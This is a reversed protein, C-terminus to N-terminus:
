ILVLEYDACGAQEKYTDFLRRLEGFYRAHVLDVEEQTPAAKQEVRLPAGVVVNTDIKRPLPLYMRGYPFYPFPFALRKVFWRQVKPAYVNDMLEGEQFSLIPVLPTGSEIALRIFGKHRTYVRIQKLGSRQELMEAQGGPVVLVSEKEELTAAFAERTVERSGLYQLVDRLWPIQHLISAVLVHAHVGPFLDRWQQSFLLWTATTSMIGHPHFGMIYHQKADLPADRILKAGFYKSLIDMVRNRQTVWDMKIRHGTVQPKGRYSFVYVYFYATLLLMPVTAEMGHTYHYYTTLGPLSLMLAQPLVFKLRYPSVHKLKGNQSEINHWHIAISRSAVFLFEVLTTSLGYFVAEGLSLKTMTAYMVVFLASPVWQLNTLGGLVFAGLCEDAFAQLRQGFAPLNKKESEDVRTKGKFMLLSMMMVVESVLFLAGAVIMAGVFLELEVVVISLLYLGQIFIGVSFCTWSIAQFLMFQVGGTFPQYFRWGDKTSLIGGLGYTNFMGTVVLALSSMGASLAFRSLIADDAMVYVPNENDELETTFQMLESNVALLLAGIVLLMNNFNNIMVVLREKRSSTGRQSQRELALKSSIMLIEAIFALAVITTRFDSACEYAWTTSPCVLWATLFVAYVVWAVTQYIKFNVNQRHQVKATVRPSMADTTDYTILSSPLYTVISTIPVAAFLVGLCIPRLEEPLPLVDLRSPDFRNAELLVFLAFAEFTVFAMALLLIGWRSIHVGDFASALLEDPKAIKDVTVHPPRNANRQRLSSQADAVSAATKEEM